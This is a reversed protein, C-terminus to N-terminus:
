VRDVATHEVFHSWFCRFMMTWIEKNLLSTNDSRWTNHLSSSKPQCIYVSCDVRCDIRSGCKCIVDHVHDSASLHSTLTIGFINVQSVRHIDPLPPPILSPSATKRRCNEFMIETSKARSIKLNNRQARQAVNDLEAERFHANRAPIVIYM